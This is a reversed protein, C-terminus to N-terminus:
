IKDMDALIREMEDESMQNNVNDEDVTCVADDASDKLEREARFWNVVDDAVVANGSDDRPCPPNLWYDGPTSIADM